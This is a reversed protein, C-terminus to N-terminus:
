HHRHTAGVVSPIMPTFSRLSPGHVPCDLDVLRSGDPVTGINGISRPPTCASCGAPVLLQAHVPCELSVARLPGGMLNRNVHKPCACKPVDFWRHMEALEAFRWLRQQTFELIDFARALVLLEAPVDTAAMACFIRSREVHTAQPAAIREDDLSQRAILM